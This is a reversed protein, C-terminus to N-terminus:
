HATKKAMSQLVFSLLFAILCLFSVMFFIYNVHYNEIVYGIIIPMILMSLGQFICLALMVSTSRLKETAYDFFLFRSILNVVPLTFMQFGNLLVMSLVSTSLGFLTYQIMTMFAAFILLKYTGVKKVIQYGLLYFPIEVIACLSWKWGIATNSAGLKMLKEIVATGSCSYACSLLFLIFVLLLYKKNTLLEVFDEKTIKTKSFEEVEPKENVLLIPLITLALLIMLSIAVGPYGFNNLIMAFVVSAVAWGISGFTRIFSFKSRAEEGYTFIWNDLASYNTYVLGGSIGVIILQLIFNTSPNLYFITSIIATISILIIVFLKEKHYKDSIYGFFFQFLISTIAVLSMMTGRQSPTFGILSLYPVLLSLFGCYLFYAMFYVISNKIVFTKKM